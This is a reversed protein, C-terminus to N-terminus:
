QIAILSLSHSSACLVFISLLCLSVVQLKIRVVSYSVFSYFNLEFVFNRKMSM